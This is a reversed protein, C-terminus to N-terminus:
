SLLTFSQSNFAISHSYPNPVVTNSILFAASTTKRIKKFWLPRHFTTRLQSLNIAGTSLQCNECNIARVPLVHYFWGLVPNFFFLLFVFFVVSLNTFKFLKLMSSDIGHVSKWTHMVDSAHVNCEHDYGHVCNTFPQM